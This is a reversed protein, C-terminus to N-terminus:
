DDRFRSPPRTIRRPRDSLAAPIHGPPAAPPEVVEDQYCPKLKDVYVTWPRAKPTRQVLYNVPGLQRLVKFPGQYPCQWKAYRGTKRRPVLVWVSSNPLYTPARTRMDYQQKRRRAARGLNQRVLHFAQHLTTRQEDVFEVPDTSRPEDPPPGYALDAPIRAERGYMLFYPTFRTAEQVSARYAFAVAPLKKDWDRQNESVLKALMSHMTGHFREIDGNTSRKYPTTRIKDVCMLRCLEQFLNSEFNPGQDTLIQSPCGHQCIVRDMLIRAVTPAEQNRM